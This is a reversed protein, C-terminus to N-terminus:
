VACALGISIFAAGTYRTLRLKKNGFILDPLGAPTM